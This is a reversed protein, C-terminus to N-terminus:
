CEHRAVLDEVAALESEEVNETGRMWPNCREPTMEVLYEWRGQCGKYESFSREIVTGYYIFVKDFHRSVFTWTVTDGLNFKSAPISITQKVIMYLGM